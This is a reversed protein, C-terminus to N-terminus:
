GGPSRFRLGDGLSNPNFPGANTVMRCVLQAPHSRALVNQPPMGAIRCQNSVLFDRDSDSSSLKAAANSTVSLSREVREEIRGAGSKALL